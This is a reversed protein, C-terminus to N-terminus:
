LSQRHCDYMSEESIARRCWECLGGGAASGDCGRNRHGAAEKAGVGDDDASRPWESLDSYGGGAASGDSGWNEGGCRACWGPPPVDQRDQGYRAVGCGVPHRVTWCFV